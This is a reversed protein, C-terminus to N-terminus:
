PETRLKPDIADRLAEGFLAFGLTALSLMGGALIAPWFSVSLNIYGDNLLTGWSALPPPVGVGLFSMGAEITIVVPIDMSALVVLPGMINPVIHVLTIRASSAGLVREAELFPANRLSLTQARAVRGFHPTLTLSVILIVKDLGPGFLAVIALALVLSPFSSVIDFVILIAREVQVPANAAAIGLLTGAVLAIAITVLAVMLAIQGGIALRAALDRGLHDTGLWHDWGPTAFRSMINIRNPDRPILFPGLLSFGVVLVMLVLGIRGTPSRWIAALTAKM